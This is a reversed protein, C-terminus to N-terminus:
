RPSSVLHAARVARKALRAGCSLKYVNPPTAHMVPEDNQRREIAGVSPGYHPGHEIGVSRNRQKCSMRRATMTRSSTATRVAMDLSQGPQWSWPGRELPSAVQPAPRTSRKQGAPAKAERKRTAPGVQQGAHKTAPRPRVRPRRHGRPCAERKTRLGLEIRDQKATSSRAESLPSPGDQTRPRRATCSHEQLM